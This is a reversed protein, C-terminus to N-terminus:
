SHAQSVIVRQVGQIPIRGFFLWERQEIGDIPSKGAGDNRFAEDLQLDTASPVLYTLYSKDLFSHDPNSVESTTPVAM